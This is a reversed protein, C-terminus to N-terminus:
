GCVSEISRSWSSPITRFNSGPIKGKATIAEHTGQWVHDAIHHDDLVDLVQFYILVILIIYILVFMFIIRAPLPRGAIASAVPRGAIARSNL